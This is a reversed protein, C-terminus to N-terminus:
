RDILAGSEADHVEVLGEAADTVRLQREAVVPTLQEAPAPEGFFRVWGVSVVSIVVLSMSYRMNKIRWDPNWTRHKKDILKMYTTAYDANSVVIPATLATGLPAVSHMFGAKALAIVDM